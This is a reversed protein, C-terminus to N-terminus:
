PTAEKEMSAIILEAFHNRERLNRLSEGVKSSQCSREREQELNAQATFTATRAGRPDVTAAAAPSRLSKWRPLLPTM